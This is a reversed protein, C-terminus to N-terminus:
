VTISPDLYQTSIEDIKSLATKDLDVSFADINEKLHELTTAGIITSGVYWRSLIFRIVSFGAVIQM